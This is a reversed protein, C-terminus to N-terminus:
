FITLFWLSCRVSSSLDSASDTQQGRHVQKGCKRRESTPAIIHTQTNTERRWSTLAPYSHTHALTPVYSHGMPEKVSVCVSTHTDANRQPVINGRAQIPASSINTTNPALPTDVTSLWPGPVSSEMEGTHIREKRRARRKYFFPPAFIVKVYQFCM